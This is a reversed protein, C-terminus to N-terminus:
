QIYVASNHNQTPRIAWEWVIRMVSVVTNDRNLEVILLDDSKVESASKGGFLVARREDVSTFTFQFCPPPLQGTIYPPRWEGPPLSM